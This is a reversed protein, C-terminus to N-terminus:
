QSGVLSLSKGWTLKNTVNGTKHDVHEDVQGM